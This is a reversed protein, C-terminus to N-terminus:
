ISKRFIDIGYKLPKTFEIGILTKAWWEKIDSSYRRFYEERLLLDGVRGRRLVYQPVPIEGLKQKHFPNPLNIRNKSAM